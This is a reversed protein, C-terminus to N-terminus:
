FELLSIFLIMGALRVLSSLVLNQAFSSPFNNSTLKNYTKASSFTAFAILFTFYIVLTWFYPLWAFKLSLFFLVVAAFIISITWIRDQAFLDILEAKKEQTLKKVAADQILRAGFISSILIIFSIMNYDM